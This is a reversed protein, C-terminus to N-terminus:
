VPWGPKDNGQADWVYVKGDFAPMVVDLKGDADMDVLTSGAFAGRAIQTKEDMCPTGAPLAKQEGRPCSPVDPMRIPWKGTVPTGDAHVAYVTGAWTGFVVENKGDGDIDGVAVASLVSERLTDPDIDGSTYGNKAGADLYHAVFPSAEAGEQLGDIRR